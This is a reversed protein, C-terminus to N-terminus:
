LEASNGAGSASVNLITAVKNITRITNGKIRSIFSSSAGNGIRITNVAININGNKNKLKTQIGSAIPTKVKRNETISNM